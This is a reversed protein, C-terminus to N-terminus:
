VDGDYVKPFQCWPGTETNTYRDVPKFDMYIRGILDLSRDQSNSYKQDLLPNVAGTSWRAPRVTLEEDAFLWGTPDEALALPPMRYYNLISKGGAVETEKLGTRFQGGLEWKDSFKHNLDLSFTYKNMYDKEIFGKESQYGATMSFSTNGSMGRLSIYQNSRYGNEMFEEPWNYTEGAAIRLFFDHDLAEHHTSFPNESHYQEM